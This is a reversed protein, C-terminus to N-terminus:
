WQQDGIRLKQLADSLAMSLAEKVDWKRFVLV